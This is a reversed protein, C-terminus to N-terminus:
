ANILARITQKVSVARDMIEKETETLETEKNNLREIKDEISDHFDRMVMNFLLSLRHQADQHLTEMDFDDSDNNDLEIMIEPDVDVAHALMKIQETGKLTKMSSIFRESLDQSPQKGDGTAARFEEAISLAKKILEM